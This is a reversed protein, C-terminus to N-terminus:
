GNEDEDKKLLQLYHQELLEYQEKLKIYDHVANVATLVAVKGTDLSPNKASIERMREDVMSAVLRIHSAPDTGIITYQQGYIGVTIRTKELTAQRGM